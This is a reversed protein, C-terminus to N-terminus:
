THKCRILLRYYDVYYFRRSKQWAWKNHKSRWIKRRGRSMGWASGDIVFASRSSLHKNKKTRNWRFNTHKSVKKHFSLCSTERFDTQHSDRQKMLLSPRVSQSASLPTPTANRL